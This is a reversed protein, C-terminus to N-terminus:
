ISLYFIFHSVLFLNQFSCMLSDLVSNNNGNLFLVIECDINLIYSIWDM